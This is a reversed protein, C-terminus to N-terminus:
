HQQEGEWGMGEGWWLGEADRKLSQSCHSWVVTPAIMLQRKKMAQWIIFSQANFEWGQAQAENAKKKDKDATAAEEPKMKM